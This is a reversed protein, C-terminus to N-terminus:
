KNKAQRCRRQLWRVLTITVWTMAPGLAIMM